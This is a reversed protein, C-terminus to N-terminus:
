EFDRRPLRIAISLVVIAVVKRLHLYGFVTALGSVGGPAIQAPVLFADLSLAMIAAGLIVLGYKKLSM